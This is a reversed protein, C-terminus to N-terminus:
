RTLRRKQTYDNANAVNRVFERDRAAMERRIQAIAAQDANGTITISTNGQVVTTGGGGGHMQVGLSGNAGRKLPMIAEPGAEGMVGLAAGKAFAFPTARNVISNTFSGGKAFPTVNDNAFVGGNAFLGGTGTLGSFLGSGGGTVSGLFSNVLSRIIANGAMQAAQGAINKLVGQFVQGANQGNMLGQTIQGFAGEAISATQELANNFRMQNAISGNMEAAYGEGYISRLRSAIQQEGSSRGIQSGEFNVDRQLRAGVQASALDGYGAALEKVKARLEETIPVGQRIYGNLMEQEKAAAAQQRVTSGIVKESAEFASRQGELELKSDRLVNNVLRDQDAKAKLAEVNRLVAETSTQVGQTQAQSQGGRGMDFHVAGGNSSLARLGHQGAMAMARQRAAPSSFTYDAATGREHQSNGPAAAKGPGYRDYLEQQKERSRFGSTM